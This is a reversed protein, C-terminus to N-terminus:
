YTMVRVSMSSPLEESLNNGVLLYVGTRQLEPRKMAAELRTRPGALIHGTWNIIEATLLGTSTGEALFLRVSKGRSPM